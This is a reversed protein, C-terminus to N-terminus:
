KFPGYKDTNEEVEKRGPALCSNSTFGHQSERAGENKSISHRPSFPLAIPHQHQFLPREFLLTGITNKKLEDNRDHSHIKMTVQHKKQTTKNLRIRAFQVPVIPIEQLREGLKQNSFGGGPVDDDYSALFSVLSSLKLHTKKSTPHVQSPVHELIEPGSVQIKIITKQQNQPFFNTSAYANTHVVLNLVLNHDLDSALYGFEM